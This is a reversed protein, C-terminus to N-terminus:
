TKTQGRVYKVVFLSFNRFGHRRLERSWPRWTMTEHKFRSYAQRNTIRESGELGLEVIAKDSTHSVALNSINSQM